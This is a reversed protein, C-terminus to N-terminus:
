LSKLAKNGSGDSKCGKLVGSRGTPCSPGRSCNVELLQPCFRGMSSKFEERNGDALFSAKPDLFRGIDM